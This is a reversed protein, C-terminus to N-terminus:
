CIEEDIRINYKSLIDKGKEYSSFDVMDEMELMIGFSNEITAILQMHAVSDWEVSTNFRMDALNEDGIGFTEVFVNNYKELNSMDKDEGNNIKEIKAYL